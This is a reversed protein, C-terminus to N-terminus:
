ALFAEQYALMGAIFISLALILTEGPYAYFIRKLPCKM